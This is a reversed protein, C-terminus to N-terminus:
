IIVKSAMDHLEEVVKNMEEGKADLARYLRRMDMELDKNMTELKDKEAFLNKLKENIERHNGKDLRLREIEARQDRNITEIRQKDSELSRAQAVAREKRKGLRPM